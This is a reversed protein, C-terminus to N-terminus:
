THKKLLILGRCITNRVSQVQMGTVTAITTFDMEEFYRLYIIEKQRATLKNMANIVDYCTDTDAISEEFDDSTFIITEDEINVTDYKKNLAISDFIHNRLSKFLYPKIKDTSKLNERNRWLKLFFDQICDKVMDTDGSLKVGYNYLDDYYKIFIASLSSKDGGLFSRWLLEENM